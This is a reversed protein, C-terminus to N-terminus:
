ETVGMRRLTELVNNSTGQAFHSLTERAFSLSFQPLNAYVDKMAEKAQDEEGLRFLAMAYCVSSWPTPNSGHMAQRAGAVAAEYRGLHFNAMARTAYLRSIAADRPSLQIAREVAEITAEQRGAIDLAKALVYHIEASNPNLAVAEQLKAIGLDHEGTHMMMDGQALVCIPDNPDLRMAMRAKERAERLLRERDDTKVNLLNHTRAWAARAWALAFGPDIETARDFFEIAEILTVNEPQFFSALGRQYLDWADLKDPPKRRARERETQDIEPVTAAIIAETVEDQVAFIDELNRDYREAWIHNGTEADILQGTVRIREGGKRVSGELVYRVGLAEAVATVDISQGKFSFSSNRAIVLLSGFRSLGTIIDEAMGDAFFEQEPDGSMNDFPLVAISPKDPLPPPQDSAATGDATVQATPSWRWVHVPRDINKVQYEGDDSFVVDLKGGVQEHINGSISMGGIDAIAQLRAAVNVCDGFIDDGDIVVEGINVGIRLLMRREDPLDANREVMGRQVAVSSEVAAVASAYEILLSDGATGVVRGGYQEIKPNWLEARHARMAALTGTEDVGMLRSYGVVDASM